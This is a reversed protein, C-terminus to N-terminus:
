VRALAFSVRSGLSDFVVRGCATSFAYTGAPELRMHKGAFSVRYKVATRAFSVRHRQTLVGTFLAKQFAMCRLFRSHFVIPLPIAQATLVRFTVPFAFFVETRIFCSAGSTRPRSHFM